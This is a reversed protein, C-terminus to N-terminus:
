IWSNHFLCKQDRLTTCFLILVFPSCFSQWSFLKMLLAWAADTLFLSLQRLTKKLRYRVPVLATTTVSQMKLPLHLMEKRNGSICIFTPFILSEWWIRLMSSHISKSPLSDKKNHVPCLIAAIPCKLYGIVVADFYCGCQIMPQTPKSSSCRSEFTRGASKM